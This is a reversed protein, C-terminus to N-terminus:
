IGVSVPPSESALAGIRGDMADMRADMADLRAEIGDLRADIRDLRAEIQAFRAEMRKEMRDLRAEFRAELAALEHRFEASMDRRMDNMHKLLYMFGGFGSMFVLGCFSALVWIATDSGQEM